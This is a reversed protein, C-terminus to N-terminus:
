RMWAQREQESRGSGVFPIIIQLDEDTVVIDILCELHQFPLHLSFADEAPHLAPPGVFLRGVLRRTLFILCDAPRALERTLLRLALAQDRRRAFFGEPHPLRDSVAPQWILAS